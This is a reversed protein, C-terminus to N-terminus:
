SQRPQSALMQIRAASDIQEDGNLFQPLIRRRAKRFEALKHDIVNVEVQNFTAEFVRRFDQYRYRNLNSPPNLWNKWQKDTYTLMQFPYKFYHDQLNIYHLHVGEPRTLRILAQTIGEVDDLHEFVSTSVVLDVPELRGDKATQRVDEQLLTFFETRPLIHTDKQALYAQFKPLLSRNLHDNPAVYKDCLIVHAAGAELFHCGVAFSGGYGFILIRKGQLDYGAAALAEQYREFAAQPHRTEHGARVLWNHKLIFDFVVQPILRRILRPLTYLLFM